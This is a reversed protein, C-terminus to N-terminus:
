LLKNLKFNFYSRIHSIFLDIMELENCNVYEINIYNQYLTIKNTLTIKFYNKIIEISYYYDNEIELKNLAIKLIKFCDSIYEDKDLYKM